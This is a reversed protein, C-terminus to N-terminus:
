AARVTALFNSVESRLKEAQVSLEKSAGLMQSSASGVENSAQAVGSMNSSVEDVGSSAQQVNGAIEQTAAQQEVVASAIVGSIQNVNTISKSILDIASRADNAADQIDKIRGSIDNTANSVQAALTKVEGAVVAFGKGADGARAAEITANLALLNTQNAIDRILEVVEGVNQAVKHLNNMAGSTKEVQEVAELTAQNSGQVQSSIENISSSLEEAASAVIQVNASTQTTAASVATTQRNTEEAAASLTQASQQMETASAAVLNVVGGVSQEFEDAMRNLAAKQDAAAKAKLAEQDANLRRTEIATEKFVQLSAALKGVEDKREAGVIQTELNGAAVLGMAGTIGAIPKVVFFQIMVWLITAAAILGILSVAMLTTTTTAIETDIDEVSQKVEAQGTGVNTNVADALEGMLKHAEGKSLDEAEEVQGAQVMSMSKRSVEDFAMIDKKMEQAAAKTQETDAVGIIADVAAIADKIHEEYSDLLAKHESVDESLLMSKEALAAANLNSEMELSNVLRVNTVGTLGDAETNIDKFGQNALLIMGIM